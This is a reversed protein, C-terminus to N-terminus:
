KTNEKFSILKVIREFSFETKFRPPQKQKYAQLIACACSVVSSTDFKIINGNCLQEHQSTMKTDSMVIHQSFQLSQSTIGSGSQGTESYPIIVVDVESIKQALQKDTAGVTWNIQFLAKKSLLESLVQTTPKEKAKSDFIAGYNPAEPHHSGLIILQSEKSIKKSKILWHFAEIVLPFNKHKSIFGFLGVSFPTKKTSCDEKESILNEPWMIPHVVSSVSYLDKLIKQDRYTHSIVTLKRKNIRKYIKSYSSFIYYQRLKMIATKLLAKFFSSSSMNKRVLRLFDPIKKEVRHMTISTREPCHKIIRILNKSSQTPNSGFLGLEMQINIINCKKIEAIIEDVIKRSNTEQIEKPVAIRKVKLGQKEAGKSLSESYTANGCLINFSSVIGLIDSM